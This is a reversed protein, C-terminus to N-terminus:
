NESGVITGGVVSRGYLVVWPAIPNRVATAIGQQINQGGSSSGGSLLTGVDALAMGAGAVILSSGIFSQAIAAWIGVGAGATALSFAIGGAIELGGIIVGV